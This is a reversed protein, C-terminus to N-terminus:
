SLGDRPLDKFEYRGEADTNALRSERVEAEVLRVQTKRLPRGNDATV